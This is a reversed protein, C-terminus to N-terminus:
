KKAVDGKKFIVVGDDRVEFDYGTIRAVLQLADYFSINNTRIRPVAPVSEGEATKLVIKVGEKWPDYEKGAQNLFAVADALTMPPKFSLSPIVIQRMRAIVRANADTVSKAAVKIKGREISLRSSLEGDTPMAVASSAVLAALAMEKVKM